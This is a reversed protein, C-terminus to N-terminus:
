RHLQMEVAHLIDGVGRRDHYQVEFVIRSADALDVDIALPRDMEAAKLVEEFRNHGDVQIVFKVVGASNASPDFGVLGTLKRYQKAVVYSLKAGGKIAFGHSYDERVRSGTDENFTMLELPKGSFDRDFRAISFQKLKELVTSSALLPSWTNSAPDVDSLWVARGERFNISSVTDVGLILEAGCMSVLVVRAEEVVLSQARITSGDTLEAVFKPPLQKESYRRYFVLGALRERKVDASRAGVTFSVHEESVDGIIGDVRQLKQARNVVLADSERDEKLLTRWLSDNGVVSAQFQVFDILRSDISLKSDNTTTLSLQREAATISKCRLVSGDVLTVRNASELPLASAQCRIFGVADCSLVKEDGAAALTVSDGDVSLLRGQILSGDSLNFHAADRTQAAICDCCAVWLILAFSIRILRHNKM